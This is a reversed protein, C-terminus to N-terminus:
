QRETAGVLAVLNPIQATLVSAESRWEMLPGIGGYELAVVWPRAWRGQRIEECCWTLLKWDVESLPMHERLRGREDRDVGSVHLERLRHVPLSSLYEREGVGLHFAATRAHAVDLLFGCGAEECVRHMFWAEAGIRLRAGDPGRYPLNEVIVRELGFRDSVMAIDAKTRELVETCYASDESEDSEISVGPFDVRLPALHLNVYPTSSGAALNSVEDLDVKDSTRLGAQLDFHLYHPLSTRRAGSILEPWPACKWRDFGLLGATLLAAAQPSYNVAVDM